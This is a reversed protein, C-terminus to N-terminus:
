KKAEYERLAQAPDKDFIFDGAIRDAGTFSQVRFEFRKGGRGGTAQWIITLAAAALERTAYCIVGDKTGFWWGDRHWIAPWGIKNFEYPKKPKSKKM